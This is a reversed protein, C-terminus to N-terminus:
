AAHVLVSDEVAEDGSASSDSCRTASEPESPEQEIAIWTFQPHKEQLIALWARMLGDRAERPIRSM